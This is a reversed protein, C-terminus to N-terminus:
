LALGLQTSGWAFLGKYGLSLQYRLEFQCKFGKANRKRIYLSSYNSKRKEIVRSDVVFTRNDKSNYINTIYVKSLM